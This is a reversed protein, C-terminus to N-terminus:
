PTESAPPFILSLILYLLVILPIGELGMLSLLPISALVLAITGMNKKWGMRNFKLSFLPIEAVLLASSFVSFVLWFGVQGTLDKLMGSHDTASAVLPLIWGANAPTPLGIFHKTQRSDTNFKALRLASFVTVLFGAHAFLVPIGSGPLANLLVVYIALGPVLGFSVMDAL